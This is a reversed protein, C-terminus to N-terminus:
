AFVLDGQAVSLWEKRDYFQLLERLAVLVEHNEVITCESMCKDLEYPRARM